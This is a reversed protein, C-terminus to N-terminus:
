ESELRCVTLPWVAACSCHQKTDLLRQTCWQRAQLYGIISIGGSMIQLLPRVIPFLSTMTRTKTEKTYGRGWGLGVWGM